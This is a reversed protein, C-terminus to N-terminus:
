IQIYKLIYNMWRITFSFKLLLKFIYYWLIKILQVIYNIESVWLGVIPKFFPSISSKLFAAQDLPNLQVLYKFTICFDTLPLSLSCFLCRSNKIEHPHDQTFSDQRFSYLWLFFYLKFARSNILNCVRRSWWSHKLFQIIHALHTHIIIVTAPEISEQLKLLHKIERWLLHINSMNFLMLDPTARGVPCQLNICFDFEHRM